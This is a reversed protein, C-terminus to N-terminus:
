HNVRRGLKRFSNPTNMLNKAGLTTIKGAKLYTKKVLVPATLGSKHLTQRGQGTQTM